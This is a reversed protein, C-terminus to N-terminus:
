LINILSAPKLMHYSYDIIDFRTQVYASGDTMVWLTEKCHAVASALKIPCKIYLYVGM